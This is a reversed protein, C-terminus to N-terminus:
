VGITQALGSVCCLNGHLNRNGKCTKTAVLDRIGALGAFNDILFTYYDSPLSGIDKLEELDVEKGVGVLFMQVGEQKALDAEIVTATRNDSRGDTIVVAVRAVNVGLPRSKLGVEFVNRRVFRIADGTITQFGGRQRIEEVAARLDPKASYEHLHFQLQPYDAYTVIAVRTDNPGIPLREIVEQVFTLQRRFDPRWVSYSSHLLFVVDAAGGGVCGLDLGCGFM